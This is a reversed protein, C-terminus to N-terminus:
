GTIPMSVFEEAALPWVHAASLALVASISIVISAATMLLAHRLAKRELEKEARVDIGQKRSWIMGDM